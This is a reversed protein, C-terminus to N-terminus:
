RISMVLIAKRKSVYDINHTDDALKTEKLASRVTDLM